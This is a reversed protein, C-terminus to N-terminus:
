KGNFPFKEILIVEAANTKMLCIQLLVLAFEHFIGARWYLRNKIYKSKKTGHQNRLTQCAPIKSQFKCESKAKMRPKSATKSIWVLITTNKMLFPNTSTLCDRLGTNTREKIQFCKSCPPLVYILSSIFNYLIFVLFSPSSSVLHLTQFRNNMKNYHMAQLAVQM